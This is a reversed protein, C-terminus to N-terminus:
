HTTAASLQPLPLSSPMPLRPSNLAPTSCLWRVVLGCVLAFGANEVINTMSGYVLTALLLCYVSMQVDSKCPRIRLTRMLLLVFGPLAVWGFVVFWYMFINDGANFLSREFYSQATGIGGIGRGLLLNGYRHLLEWAEPWMSNLRDYFSYTVNALTPNSFQAHFSFLLTSLPLALAIAGFLAPLARLPTEPLSNRFLAIPTLVVAVLLIGKSNTPLIALLTTAWFITRLLSSKTRLVLLIGLIQVQAAADFSSRAFGALRKNGGGAYWQRAGEVDLDGVNYGFGEWPYTILQNLLVGGATLAWLLPVVGLVRPWHKLLVPGCALGFWFPLLVYVGMAVQVSGTFQLGIVIAYLPVTLAILNLASFGRQLPEATSQWFVALLLMLNPIYIIVSLGVTSLTMRLPGAGLTMIVFALAATLVFRERMPMSAPRSAPNAHSM